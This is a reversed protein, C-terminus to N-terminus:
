LRRIPLDYDKLTLVLRLSSSTGIRGLHSFIIIITIMIFIFALITGQSTHSLPSLALRNVLPDGTRDWDPYMGPNCAMDGTPPM